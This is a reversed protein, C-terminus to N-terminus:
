KKADALHVANARPGTASLYEATPLFYGGAGAAIAVVIALWWRGTIMAVGSVDWLDENRALREEHPSPLAILALGLVALVPVIAGLIQVVPPPGLPMGFVAAALGASALLASFGYVRQTFM